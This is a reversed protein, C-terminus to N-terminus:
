KEFFEDPKSIKSAGAIIYMGTINSYFRAHPETKDTYSRLFEKICYLAWTGVGKNRHHTHVAICNLYVVPVNSIRFPSISLCVM